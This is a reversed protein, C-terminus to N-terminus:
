ILQAQLTVLTPFNCQLLAVIHSKFDHSSLPIFCGMILLISEDIEVKVCCISKDAPALTIFHQCTQIVIM